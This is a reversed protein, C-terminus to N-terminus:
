RVLVFARGDYLPTADGSGTVVAELRLCAPKELIVSTVLLFVSPKPDPDSIILGRAEDPPLLSITEDVLLRSESSDLDYATVQLRLEGQETQGADKLVIWRLPWAGGSGWPQGGDVVWINKSFPRALSMGVFKAQAPTQDPCTVATGMVAPTSTLSPERFLPPGVLAELAFALQAASAFGEWRQNVLGDTGILFTTPTQSVGYQRATSGSLDDVLVPITELQWNYTFNILEDQSPQKGIELRSADIILVQVGKPSYQQEMSRLFVIQSRSPDPTSSSLNAQTNIFALLVVQGRLDAMNYIGGQAADLGFDPAPMGPQLNVLSESSFLGQADAYVLVIVLVVGAVVLPWTVQRTLGRQRGQTGVKSRPM